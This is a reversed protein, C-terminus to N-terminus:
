QQRLSKIAEGRGSTKKSEEWEEEYGGIREREREERNRVYNDDVTIIITNDREMTNNMIKGNDPVRKIM